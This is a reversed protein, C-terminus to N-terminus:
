EAAKRLFDPVFVDPRERPVFHFPILVTRAVPAGNVEAPRFKWQRLAVKVATSLTPDARDSTIRIASPRGTVGVVCEATVTRDADSSDVFPTVVATPVPLGPTTFAGELYAQELTKASALVPTAILALAILVHSHNTKM